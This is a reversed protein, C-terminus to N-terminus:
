NVHGAHMCSCESTHMIVNVSTHHLQIKINYKSLTYYSFPLSNSENFSAVCKGAGRDM